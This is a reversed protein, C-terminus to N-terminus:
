QTIHKMEAFYSMGGCLAQTIAQSEHSLTAFLIGAEMPIGYIVSLALSVVYHFAGFGGPVPVLTSVAGVLCLFIADVLGLQQLTSVGAAQDGLVAPDIGQVAWIITASMMWYCGWVLLTYLMFKWASKMRLCTMLGEGLGKVFGWIKGALRSSNRFHYLAWLAALGVLALGALILATNRKAAVSGLITETVFGGYRSWMLGLVLVFLLIMVVGDWLRDLVATGLAKEFSAKKQGDPGTESHKAIYANRIVDGGRPIVLNVLYSINIANFVPGIRLSPDLPELLMQWRLSRFFFSAVGIVMSLLVFGWNCSVLGAWFQSWEVHRFSYWLLFAAVGFSLGYKVWDKAKM